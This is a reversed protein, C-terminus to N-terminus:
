LASASTAPRPHEEPAAKCSRHYPCRLAPGHHDLALWVICVLPFYNLLVMMILTYHSFYNVLATSTSKMSYVGIQQIFNVACCSKTRVQSGLKVSQVPSREINPLVDGADDIPRSDPVNAEQSWTCSCLSAILVLLCRASFHSRQAEMTAVISISPICCYYYCCYYHYCSLKLM